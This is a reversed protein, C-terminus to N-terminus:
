LCLLEICFVFVFVHLKLKVSNVFIHLILKIYAICCAISVFKKGARHLIEVAMLVIQSLM